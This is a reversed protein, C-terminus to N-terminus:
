TGRILKKWWVELGNKGSKLAEFQEERTINPAPGEKKSNNTKSLKFKMRMNM